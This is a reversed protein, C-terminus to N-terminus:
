WDISVAEIISRLYACGSLSPFNATIKTKFIQKEQLLGEFPSQTLM